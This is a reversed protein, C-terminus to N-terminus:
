LEMHRQRQQVVCVPGAPGARYIYYGGLATAVLIVSLILPLHKNFFKNKNLWIM